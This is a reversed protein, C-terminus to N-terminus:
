LIRKVSKAGFDLAVFVLFAMIKLYFSVTVDTLATNM